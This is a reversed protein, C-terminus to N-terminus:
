QTKNKLYIDSPIWEFSENKKLKAAFSRTIPRNKQVAKIFGWKKERRFPIFLTWCPSSNNKLEIRHLHNSKVKRWSGPPYWTTTKENKSTLTTEYYGGTIIFSCFSWPHDHLDEEDSKLIKHIFINIPFKQREKFLIYYRILYPNKGDRDLIIKKKGLKDMSWDWLIFLYTGIRCIIFYIFRLLNYASIFLTQYIFISYVKIFIYFEKNIVPHEGYQFHNVDQSSVM